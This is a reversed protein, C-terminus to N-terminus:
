DGVCTKDPDRFMFVREVGKQQSDEHPEIRHGLTSVTGPLCLVAGVSAETVFSQRLQTAVVCVFVVCM